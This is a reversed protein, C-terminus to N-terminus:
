VKIENSKNLFINLEKNFLKEFKYTFDFVNEWHQGNSRVYHLFVQAYENGEFADRWHESEVGLYLAAQGVGINLSTKEGNPKTFFIDWDKDKYLNLSISIECSPRDTHKKLVEGKQYLRAYSYTPLVPEGILESIYSTKNALIELFPKYNYVAFSNPCQIDKTFHSPYNNIDSKFQKYLTNAKEVDIFNEVFLYNNQKLQEIM